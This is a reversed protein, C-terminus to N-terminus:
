AQTLVWHSELMGRMAVFTSTIREAARDVVELRKWESYRPYRTLHNTVREGALRDAPVPRVIKPPAEPRSDWM